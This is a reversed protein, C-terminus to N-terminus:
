YPCNRCGNGCCNGRKLHYWKTFIYNNHEITYDIYQVFGDGQPQTKAFALMEKLSMGMLKVDLQKAVAIALCSPCFCGKSSDPILVSPLNMCWCGNSSSADCGFSTKCSSCTAM